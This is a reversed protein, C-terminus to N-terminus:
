ETLIIQYNGRTLRINGLSSIGIKFRYKDATTLFDARFKGMCYVESASIECRSFAEPGFIRLLTQLRRYNNKM